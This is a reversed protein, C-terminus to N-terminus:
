NEGYRAKFAQVPGMMINDSIYLPGGFFVKQRKELAEQESTYKRITEEDLGGTSVCYGRSRFHPGAVRENGRFQRHIQVASKEKILGRAFAVSRKTPVSVCRHIRNRMLYGEVM